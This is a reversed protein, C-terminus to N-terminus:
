EHGGDKQRYAIRVGMKALAACLINIHEDSRDLPTGRQAYIAAAFLEGACVSLVSVGAASLIMDGFQLTAERAAEYALKNGSM